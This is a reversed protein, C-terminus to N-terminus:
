LKNVLLTFNKRSPEGAGRKFELPFDSLGYFSGSM